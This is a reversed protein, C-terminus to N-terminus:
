RVDCMERVKDSSIGGVQYAIEIDSLGQALLRRVQAEKDTAKVKKKKSVKPIPPHSRKYWRSLDAGADLLTRRVTGHKTRLETAIQRMPMVEFMELVQAQDLVRKARAMLYGGGDGATGDATVERM